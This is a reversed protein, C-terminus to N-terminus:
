LKNATCCFDRPYLVIKQTLYLLQIKHNPDNSMLEYTIKSITNFLVKRENKRVVPGETRQPEQFFIGLPCRLAEAIALVRLGRQAMEELSAHMDKRQEDDLGCLDAITEPAGKAAVLREPRGERAWVQSVALLEPALAYKQEVTWGALEGGSPTEASHNNALEHFAKEMPDFPQEESALM